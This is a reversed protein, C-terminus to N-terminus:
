QYYADGEDSVSRNSDVIDSPNPIRLGHFPGLEFCTGLLDMNVDKCLSMFAVATGNIQMFYMLLTLAKLFLLSKCSGM